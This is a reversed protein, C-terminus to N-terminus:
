EILKMASNGLEEDIRSANARELDINAYSVVFLSDTACMLALSDRSYGLLENNSELRL